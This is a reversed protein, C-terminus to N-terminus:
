SPRTWVGLISKGVRHGTLRDTLYSVPVLFRDWFGIQAPTPMASQLLLRNGLSALMGASDLYALRTLRLGAPGAARLSQRTYRRYHGISADFPTYLWPHAPSLM